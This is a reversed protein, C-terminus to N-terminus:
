PRVMAQVTRCAPRSLCNSLWGVVHRSRALLSPAPGIWEFVTALNIDAVTFRDGVVYRCRGLHADLVAVPAQLREIAKTVSTQRRKSKSPAARDLLLTLADLEVETTAWFSWMTMQAEESLTAPALAGGHKRALYLNIAMSEWVILGDDDIVPVHGNPNIGLFEATRCHDPVIPRFETEIHRYALGLEEALWLTRNARSLAVGYITLAM